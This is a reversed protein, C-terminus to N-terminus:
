LQSSMSSTTAARRSRRAKGACLYCVFPDMWAPQSRTGSCSGCKTRMWGEALLWTKPLWVPLPEYSRPVPWFVDHDALERWGSFYAGSSYPDVRWTRAFQKRHEGHRRWNNLVYALAHRAQRRNDIIEAHYRDAFVTGTRGAARNIHRAASIQLGQMGRALAMRDQAEVLLHIHTRQISVHVVYFRERLLSTILAERIARYMHRKRLSRLGEVARITVHVPQSARFGPRVGHRESARPGKAPRGGPHKKRRPFLSLQRAM